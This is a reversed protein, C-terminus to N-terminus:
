GCPVLGRAALMEELPSRNLGKAVFGQWRTPLQDLVQQAAQRDPFEAFVGSGTGTLRAPAHSSLWDLVEAVPPYQRRVLAECDNVGAGSLFASITIPPTNRTLESSSFVAATSVSIPPFAVLYWPEPLVLPTLREGIVEAWAAAGHVFVPVDAGLQLGLEALQRRPYGLKWVANLVVLTTAANSSGGGIGGGQPLRKSVFIDAGQHVGATEQLLRAARITLDDKEEVGALRSIRNISKDSRIRFYLEDSYALFQFVTQLEHYGDSRRGLIHLCLNLKAPAPWPGDAEAPPLNWSSLSVGAM